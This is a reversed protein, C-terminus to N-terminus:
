TRIDRKDEKNRLEISQGSLMLYNGAEIESTIRERERERERERGREREREQESFEEIESTTIMTAVNRTITTPLVVWINAAEVRLPRLNKWISRM